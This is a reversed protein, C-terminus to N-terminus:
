MLYTLHTRGLYSWILVAGSTHYTCHRYSKEIPGNPMQCDAVSLLLAVYRTCCIVLLYPLPLESTTDCVRPRKRKGDHGFSLNVQAIAADPVSAISLLVSAERNALNTALLWTARLPRFLCIRYKM